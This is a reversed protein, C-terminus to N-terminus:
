ARGILYLLYASIGLFRLVNRNADCGMSKLFAKRACSNVNEIMGIVFHYLYWGRDKVCMSTPLQVTKDCGTYYIPKVLHIKFGAIVVQFEGTYADGSREPNRELDFRASEVDMVVSRLAVILASSVSAIRAAISAITFALTKSGLRGGLGVFRAVLTPRKRNGLPLSIADALGNLLKPTRRGPRSM